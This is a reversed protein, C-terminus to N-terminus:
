PSIPLPVNGVLAILRDEANRCCQRRSRHPELLGLTNRRRGAQIRHTCVAQRPPGPDNRNGPLFRLREVGADGALPRDRRNLVTSPMDAGSGGESTDSPRLSDVSHALPSIIFRERPLTARLRFLLVLVCRAITSDQHRFPDPPLPKLKRDSLRSEIPM